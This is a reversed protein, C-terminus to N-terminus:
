VFNYARSNPQQAWLPSKNLSPHNFSFKKLSIKTLGIFLWVVEVLLWDSDTLQM